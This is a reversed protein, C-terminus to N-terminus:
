QLYFAYLSGAASVLVYQHGDLMFTEPGNTVKGGVDAHWLIKGTSADYAIFDRSPNGTFLLGGSTSLMGPYTSSWFGNEQYKHEWKVEGTRYDLARLSSHFLGTHYEGGRGYGSPDSSDPTLYFVSFAYTANVYLLGTSPDFSPVPYNAAGDSDPSVLTGGPSPEKDKNPVLQGTTDLGENYANATEVFRKVLVSKGNTRDLLFFYGNRNVQALLKRPQGDITGDVLIPVETSDWDHTDHPSFQYHWTMRGTDPNLAVVSCTYLNDGERARGNYTPTPNGTTVYILNLEPDYTVPQWPAGAGNSAAQSNPWTESGPEGAQQPTTYWRWQLDGTEPDRSELWTPNNASDGGVGILVHNGIIVPASTSFNVSKEDALPKRWRERGTAADLSVINNDGTEFYLWGGYMGVGRNGIVTRGQWLYHWLEEGTRADIAYANNTTTLYLVGNVMLPISKIEVGFGGGRGDASSAAVAGGLIAGRPSTSPRYIWALSLGKVNAATIQKLTSFHRGSYDGHYTPWSDTAPKALLSADLPGQASTGPPLAAFLLWIFLTRVKM